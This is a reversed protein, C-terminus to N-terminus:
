TTEADPVGKLKHLQIALAAEPLECRLLLAVCEDLIEARMRELQGVLMETSAAQAVAHDSIERIRLAVERQTARASRSFIVLDAIQGHLLIAQKLLLAALKL